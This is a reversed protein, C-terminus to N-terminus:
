NTDQSRGRNEQSKARGRGSVVQDVNEKLKNVSDLTKQVESGLKQYVVKSSKAFADIQGIQMKIPKKSRESNKRNALEITGNHKSKQSDHGKKMEKIEILMKYEFPPVASQNQAFSKQKFATYPADSGKLTTRRDDIVTEVVQM